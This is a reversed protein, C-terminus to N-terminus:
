AAEPAALEERTHPEIGYLTDEGDGVVALASRLREKLLRTEATLRENESLARRQVARAEAHAETLVLDPILRLTM